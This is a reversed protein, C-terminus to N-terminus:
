SSLYNIGEIHVYAHHGEAVERTVSCQDLLTQGDTAVIISSECQAARPAPTLIPLPLFGGKM